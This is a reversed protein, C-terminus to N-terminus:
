FLLKNYRDSNKENELGRINVELRYIEKSLVILSFPPILYFYTGLIGYSFKESFLYTGYNNKKYDYDNVGRTFGLLSWSAGLILLKNKSNM